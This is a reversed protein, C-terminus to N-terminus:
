AVSQEELSPGGDDAKRRPFRPLPDGKSSLAETSPTTVIFVQKYAECYFRM